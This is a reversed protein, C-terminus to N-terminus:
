FRTNNAMRELGRRCWAITEDTDLKQLKNERAVDDQRYLRLEGRINWRRQRIHVPTLQASKHNLSEGLECMCRLGAMMGTSVEVMVWGGSCMDCGHDEVPGSGGNVTEKGMAERIDAVRPKTKMTEVLQWVASACKGYEYRSLAEFWSDFIAPSYGGWCDNLTKMIRNFEDRVM